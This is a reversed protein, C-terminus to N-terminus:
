SSSAQVLAARGGGPVPIVVAEGRDAHLQRVVAEMDDRRHHFDDVAEGALPLIDVFIDNMGCGPCHYYMFRVGTLGATKREAQMSKSEDRALDAPAFPRHCSTCNRKM